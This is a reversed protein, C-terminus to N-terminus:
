QNPSRAVIQIKRRNGMRKPIADFFLMPHMIRLDEVKQHYSDKLADFVKDNPLVITQQFEVRIHVKETGIIGKLGNYKQNMKSYLESDTTIIEATM